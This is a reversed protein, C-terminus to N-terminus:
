MLDQSLGCSTSHNFFTTCYATNLHIEKAANKALYGAQEFVPYGTALDPRIDYFAPNDPWGSIRHMGLLRSMWGGTVPRRLQLYFHFVATVNKVIKPHSKM